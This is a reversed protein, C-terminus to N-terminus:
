AGEQLTARWHRSSDEPASSGDDQEYLSYFPKDLEVVLRLAELYKPSSYLVPFALLIDCLIEGSTWIAASSSLKRNSLVASILAPLHQLITEKDPCDVGELLSATLEQARQLESLPEPDQPPNDLKSLLAKFESAFEM